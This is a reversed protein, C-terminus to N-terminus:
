FIDVVFNHEITHVLPKKVKYNKGMVNQKIRIWVERGPEGQKIGM